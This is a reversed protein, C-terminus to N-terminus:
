KVMVGIEKHEGDSPIAFGEIGIVKREKNDIIVTKGLLTEIIDKRFVPLNNQQVNVSFCDQGNIVIKGKYSLVIRNTTKGM